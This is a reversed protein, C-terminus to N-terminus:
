GAGGEITYGFMEAQPEGGAVDIGAGVLFASIQDLGKFVVGVRIAEDFVVM